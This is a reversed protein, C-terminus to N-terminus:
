AMSFRYLRDEVPKVLTAVASDPLLKWRCVSKKRRDAQLRKDGVILQQRL